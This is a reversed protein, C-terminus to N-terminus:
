RTVALYILTATVVVGWALSYGNRRMVATLARAMGNMVSAHHTLVQQLEKDTLARVRTQKM